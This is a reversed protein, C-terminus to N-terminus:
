SLQQRADHMPAAFDYRLGFNLTVRSSALLDDLGYLSEQRQRGDIRSPGVSRSSTAPLALLMSALADGTGDAKATRTTFGNTFQFRGRNNPAEYRNYQIWYLGCGFKLSHRGKNWSANDYYQFTN